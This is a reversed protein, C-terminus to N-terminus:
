NEQREMFKLILKDVFFVAPIIILLGPPYKFPMVQERKHAMVELSGLCGAQEKM